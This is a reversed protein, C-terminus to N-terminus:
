DGKIVYRCNCCYWDGREARPFLTGHRGCNPCRTAEGEAWEEKEEAEPPEGFRKLLEERVIAGLGLHSPVAQHFRKLLEPSCRAYIKPSGAVAIRRPKAQYLRLDVRSLDTIIERIADSMSLGQSQVQTKIWERESESVVVWALAGEAKRPRSM